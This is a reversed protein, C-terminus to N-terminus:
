FPSGTEAQIIESLIDAKNFVMFHTGGPIKICPAVVRRVPFTKDLEGHIHITKTNKAVDNCEWQSLTKLAWKLYHDSQKNIMDTFLTQEEASVYGHKKAWFPFTKLVINKSFLCYLRLWRVAQFTRPSERDSKISSILIVKEVAHISAIERALIGGFSHGIVIKRSNHNSFGAAMREAYHALREDKEPEIWNLHVVQRTGLNLNQFIRCDFGLGPILYIITNKM